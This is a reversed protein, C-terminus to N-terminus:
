RTRHSCGGVSRLVADRATALGDESALQEAAEECRRRLAGDLTAALAGSLAAVAAELAAPGGDGAGDGDLLLAAGLPPPALGLYALREAQSATAAPAGGRRSPISVPEPVLSPPAAPSSLLLRTM